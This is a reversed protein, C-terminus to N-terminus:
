DAFIALIEAFRSHRSCGAFKDEAVSNFSYIDSNAVLISRNIKLQALHDSLLKCGAALSRGLCAGGGITSAATAEGPESVLANCSETAGVLNRGKSAYTSMGGRFMAQMRTTPNQTHSIQTAEARKNM